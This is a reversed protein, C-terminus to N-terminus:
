RVMITNNNSVLNLALDLVGIESSFDPRNTHPLTPAVLEVKRGLKKSLVEKAGKMFNLGGGTLHVPIYEPFDFECRDICRQIYDGIMKIREETISNAMPADIAQVYDGIHLDYTDNPKSNWSLDLKRKLNEAAADHIFNDEYLFSTVHNFLNRLTSTAPFSVHNYHRCKDCTHSNAINISFNMNLNLLIRQLQEPSYYVVIQEFNRGDEPIDEVYHNGVGMYFVEGRSITYRSDGYYINKTGRVIYGVACRSYHLLQIGAYNTEVYKVITAQSDTALFNM